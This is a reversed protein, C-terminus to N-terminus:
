TMQTSLAHRDVGRAKCSGSTKHPARSTVAVVSTNLHMARATVWARMLVVSCSYAQQAPGAALIGASLEFDMSRAEPGPLRCSGLCVSNSNCPWNNQLRGAPTQSGPLPRRRGGSSVQARNEAERRAHPRCWVAHLSRGPRTAMCIRPHLLRGTKSNCSASPSTISARPLGSGGLCLSPQISANARHDAHLSERASGAQLPESRPPEEPESRAAEAGVQARARTNAARVSAHERRRSNTRGSDRGSQLLSARSRRGGRARRNRDRIPVAPPAPRRRNQDRRPARNPRRSRTPRPCGRAGRSAV